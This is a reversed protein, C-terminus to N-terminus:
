PRWDHIALCGLLHALEHRFAEGARQEELSVVHAGAIVLERPAADLEGLFRLLSRVAGVRREVIWGAVGNPHVLWWSGPSTESPKKAQIGQGTNVSDWM